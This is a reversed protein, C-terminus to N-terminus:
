FLLGESTFSQSVESLRKNKGLPLFLHEEAMHVASEATKRPKYNVKSRESGKNKEQEHFEHLQNRTTVTIEVALFFALSCRSKLQKCCNWVRAKVTQISTAFLLESIEYIILVTMDCFLKYEHDRRKCSEFYCCSVRM